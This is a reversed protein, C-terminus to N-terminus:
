GARVAQLVANHAQLWAGPDSTLGVNPTGLSKLIYVFRKPQSMLASPHAGADDPM